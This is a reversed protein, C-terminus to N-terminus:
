VPKSLVLEESGDDKIHMVGWDDLGAHCQAKLSLVAERAQAQTAYKATTTIKNGVIYKIFGYYRLQNEQQQKWAELDIGGVVKDLEKDSLENLRDNKNEM